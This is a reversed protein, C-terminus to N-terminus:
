VMLVFLEGSIYGKRIFEILASLVVVFSLGVARRSFSQLVVYCCSYGRDTGRGLFLLSTM